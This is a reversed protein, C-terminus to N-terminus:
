KGYLVLTNEKGIVTKVEIFRKYCVHMIWYAPFVGAIFPFLGPMSKILYGIFFLGIGMLITTKPSLIALIFPQKIYQFFSLHYHVYLPFFYILTLVFLFSVFILFFYLIVSGTGQMAFAFKLDIYLFSGIGLFFIGLKNAPMFEKKFTDKFVKWISIDLDKQVWKRTVTFLAVTSPFLGFVGIGLLTFGVWLVNAVLIRWIWESAEQVFKGM